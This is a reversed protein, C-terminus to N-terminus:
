ENKDESELEKVFEEYSMGFEGNSAYAHVGDIFNVSDLIYLLELREFEKDINQEVKQSKRCFDDLRLYLKYLKKFKM